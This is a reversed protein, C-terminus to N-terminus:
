RKIPELHWIEDNYQKITRDSSFYGAKSVNVLCMKAWRSRDLYLEETKKSAKLYSDFDKLIFYEDGRYMIEDFIMRFRDRNQDFTGDLLSDMVKKVDSSSNYVDFPNYSNEFRIKNIEDEHLGFIVANEDGVLKAIEVNAGDLTGLTVAGNIMFKMNSTGSAEKGATSIQESVDAAPIIVEAKSVGYNEIFVVKMFKNVEPDNNVKNAVALILEIIKKAYVYSPAAKAGFIFTHPYMKFDKNTKIQQYYHIIRFINMLQRKYAHLRKIQVDFISNEDVDINNEKKILDILAKKNHKKIENVKNLVDKDDVYKGLKELDDPNMIWSDGILSTVYDSLERNAALFWRRHTIGNTKNNFKWPYISYLDKFTDAKLIDTHLKAVGNVSFAVHIALQCMRVMGDKIIVSNDIVSQPLHKERMSILTRRNIEEIIMYVRPCLNAIYHCPWKELAEAMVTHNTFAFCKTAIEYAKDWGYDHEDMLLRMLEPIAMIPHTDNLQFVYHDPLNDYTKYKRYHARLASQLGASVLFYQQRLRLLKGNETTDDPYLGHTINRVFNLYETFSEGQPIDEDAPEATWLRLTNTVKNDYGIISVDCPIALVKLANVTRRKYEGNEYYTEANGYFNVTVAHKPKRIEWVNGNVLWQDPLEEQHGNKIKQRFFGYDYRICNGHGALGLSAISDMFCAALRGLGGNGLGADAEQDELKELDLGLDALGEKVVNYIGLNIMNNSLLRGILFEMSFYILQKNGSEIVEDKCEKANITAADRVMSGLIDYCETIDCGKIDRGYKEVLRIQFEKKFAEKNEFM